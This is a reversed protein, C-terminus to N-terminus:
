KLATAKVQIEVLDPELETEALDDEEMCISDLLGPSQVGLKVPYQLQNFPLRSITKSTNPLLSGVDESLATNEEIRSVHLLGKIVRFENDKGGSTFAKSVLEALEKPLLLSPEGAHFTSLALGSVENRVTRSLGDIMSTSPDDFGTVWFLRATSLILQKVRGFDEETLDRLLPKQFELLSICSKGALRSINCDWPFVCVKHGCKTLMINLESSLAREAETPNATLILTILELETNRMVGNIGNTLSIYQREAILLSPEQSEATGPRRVVTIKMDNNDFVNQIRYLLRDPVLICITGGVKLVEIMREAVLEPISDCSEIDLAILVDYLGDGPTAAPQDDSFDLIELRIEQGISDQELRTKMTEDQCAITADWTKFM